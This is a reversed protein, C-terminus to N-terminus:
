PKQAGHKAGWSNCRAQWNELMLEKENKSCGKLDPKLPRPPIVPHKLRSVYEDIARGYFASVGLPAPAAHRLTEAEFYLANPVSIQIIPM